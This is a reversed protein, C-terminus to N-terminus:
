AACRVGIEKVKLGSQAKPPGNQLATALAARCRKRKPSIAPYVDMWATDRQAQWRVGFFIRQLRERAISCYSPSHGYPPFSRRFGFVFVLLRRRILFFM